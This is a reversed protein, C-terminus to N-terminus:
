DEVITVFELYLVVGDDTCGQKVQGRAMAAFHCERIQVDGFGLLFIILPAYNELERDPGFRVLVRAQVRALACDSADGRRM